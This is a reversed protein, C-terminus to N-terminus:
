VPGLGKRLSLHYGMKREKGRNEPTLRAERRHREKGKREGERKKRGQRQSTETRCTKRGKGPCPLRKKGKEKEKLYQGFARVTKTATRAGGGRKEEAWGITSPGGGKKKKKERGVNSAPPNGRKERKLSGKRVKVHLPEVRRGDRSIKTKERRHNQIKQPKKKKKKQKKTTKPDGTVVPRGGGRCFVDEGGGESFRLKGLVGRKHSLEKSLLAAL